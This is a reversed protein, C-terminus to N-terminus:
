DDLPTLQFLPEIALNEECNLCETGNEDFKLLNVSQNVQEGRFDINLHLGYFPPFNRIFSALNDGQRHPYRGILEMLYLGMDYGQVCYESPPFQFKGLYSRYFNQFEADDEDVYYSTSCILGYSDKLERDVTSYRNWWHPGGMVKLKYDYAKMQSLILGASEQNGQIPIYVGGIDKRGLKRVEKVIKKAINKDYGSPISIDLIEGGLSKFNESFAYALQETSNTGDRFVAVEKLHLIGHAYLAMNKGHEQASPHAVFVQNKDRSLSSSPSLPVVQTSLNQEVWDGLIRSQKNYIDGIVIDPQLIDLRSLLQETTLSDRKSDLVEVYVRNSDIRIYKEMGMQLGEFYDLPLTKAKPIETSDIWVEDLIAPIVVAVKLIGPGVYRIIKEGSLMSEIFPSRYNHERRFYRYMERVKLSDERQYYQYALADLMFLQEGLPLREILYEMRKTSADYFMFHQLASRADQSLTKHDASDKLRLLERFGTFAATDQWSDLQILSLHYRADEAYRSQPFRDLFQDFVLQAEGRNEQRYASIGWLYLSLSTLRHFPRNYAARFADQALEPNGVELFYKGQEVFNLAVSDLPPDELQNQATLSIPIMFALLSMTIGVFAFSLRHM